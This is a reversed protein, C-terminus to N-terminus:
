GAAGGSSATRRAAAPRARGSWAAARTWTARRAGGGASRAGVVDGAADIGVPVTNGRRPGLLGVLRGGRRVYGGGAVRDSWGVVEGADNMATATAEGRGLKATRGDEWVYAMSFQPSERETWAVEGHAGLLVNMVQRYEAVRQVHWVGQEVASSSAGAAALLAFCVAAVTPCVPDVADDGNAGLRTAAAVALM